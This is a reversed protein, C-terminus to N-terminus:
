PQGEVADAKEGKERRRRPKKDRAGAPRGVPKRLTVPDVAPDDPVLDFREGDELYRVVKVRLAKVAADHDVPPSPMGFRHMFSYLDSLTQGEPRVIDATRHWRHLNNAKDRLRTLSANCPSSMRVSGLASLVARLEREPVKM